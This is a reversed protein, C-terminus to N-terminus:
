DLRVTKAPDYYPADMSVFVSRDSISQYSHSAGRPISIFDGKDLRYDRGSVTAIVEGELIMLSHAADPHKHRGLEGHFEVLNIRIHEDKKVSWVKINKGKIFPDTRRLESYSILSFTEPDSNNM